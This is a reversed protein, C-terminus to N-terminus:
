GHQVERQKTRRRQKAKKLKRTITLTNRAVDAELEVDDLRELGMADLDDNFREDAKIYAGSRNIRLYVPHRNNNIVLFIDKSETWPLKPRKIAPRIEIGLPRDVQKENQLTGDTCVTSGSPSAQAQPAYQSRSTPPAYDRYSEKLREALWVQALTSADIGMCEAVNNLWEMVHSPLDVELQRMTGNSKVMTGGKNNKALRESYDCLVPKDIYLGCSSCDPKRKRCIARCFHWMLADLYARPRETRDAMEVGIRRVEEPNDRLTLRIREYFFRRIHRDPKFEDVGINKLFECLIPLLVGRLKYPSSSNTLREILDAEKDGRIVRCGSRGTQLFGEVFHWVSNNRDKRQIRRFIRADDRIYLLETKLSQASMRLPKIKEEYIKEVQANSLRAVSDIDYRCLARTIENTHAEISDSDASASLIANCLGAFLYQDNRVFASPPHQIKGILGPRKAQLTAYIREILDECDRRSSIDINM